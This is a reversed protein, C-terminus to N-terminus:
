HIIFNNLSEIYFHQGTYVNEFPGYVLCLQDSYDYFDEWKIEKPDDPLELM